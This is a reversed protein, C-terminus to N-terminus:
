KIAKVIDLRQELYGRLADGGEHTKKTRECMTTREEQGDQYDRKRGREICIYQNQYYIIFFTCCNLNM